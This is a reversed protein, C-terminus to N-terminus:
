IINLLEGVLYYTGNHNRALFRKTQYEKDGKKVVPDQLYEQLTDYNHDRYEAYGKEKIFLLLKM